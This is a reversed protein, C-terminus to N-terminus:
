YNPISNFFVNRDSAEYVTKEQFYEKERNYVYDITQMGCHDTIFATVVPTRDEGITSFSFYLQGLQVYRSFLPYYKDKDAVVLLWNQGDDWLMNGKEDRGAVTYLEIKEEENDLDFDYAFESLKTAYESTRPDVEVASIIKLEAEKNELSDVKDNTKAQCGLVAFILCLVM